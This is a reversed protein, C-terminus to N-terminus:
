LIEIGAYTKPVKKEKELRKQVRTIVEHSTGLDLAIAMLYFDSKKVVRRRAELRTVCSCRPESSQLYFDAFCYAGGVDLEIQVAIKALVQGLM